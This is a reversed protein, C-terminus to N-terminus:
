GERARGSAREPWTRRDHAFHVASAHLGRMRAQSADYADVDQSHGRGSRGPRGLWEDLTYVAQGALLVRGRKTMVLLSQHGATHGPTALIEIGPLVERDGDIEVYTVGPGDIFRSVTHGPKDALRREASQVYIPAINALVRNQGAHDPHLHCNTAAVIESLDVGVGALAQELPREVPHFMADLEPDGEAIGTDFLFVRGDRARLANAVLTGQEEPPPNEEGNLSYTGSDFPLIEWISEDTM